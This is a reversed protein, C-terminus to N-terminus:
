RTVFVGRMRPKSRDASLGSFYAQRARVDLFLRVNERRGPKLTRSFGQRRGSSLKPGRLTFNHAKAGTNRIHFRALVGRPATHRDLVIRTDTITVRVDLELGPSTTLPHSQAAASVSLATLIAFIVLRRLSKPRTDRGSALQEPM